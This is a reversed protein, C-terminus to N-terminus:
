MGYKAKFEDLKQSYKETLQHAADYSAKGRDKSNSFIGNFLMNARQQQMNVLALVENKTATDNNPMIEDINDKLEKIPDFVQDTISNYYSSNYTGANINNELNQLESENKALAELAANIGEKVKMNEEEIKKEQAAKEAAVKAEEAKQAAEQAAKEEAQQQAIIQQQHYYYGGGTAGLLIILVVIAAIIGKKNVTWFSPRNRLAEEQAALVAPDINDAGCKPCFRIEESLNGGCNKCFKM